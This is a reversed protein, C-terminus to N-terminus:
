KPSVDLRESGRDSARRRRRAAYAAVGAFVCLAAFATGYLVPRSGIAERLQGVVDHPHAPDFMDHAPLQARGALVDRLTRLMQEVRRRKNPDGPAAGERLLEDELRLYQEMSRVAEATNVRHLVEARCYLVDPDRSGLAIARTIAAEAPGQEGLRFHSVARYIWFRPEFEYASGVRDLYHLALRYYPPKEALTAVRAHAIYHAGVGAEFQALPDEPHADAFSRLRALDGVQVTSALTAVVMGLVGGHPNERALAHYLAFAEANRHAAYLALGRRYTERQSPTLQAPDATEPGADDHRMPTNTPAEWQWVAVRVREFVAALLAPPASDDPSWLALESTRRAASPADSPHGMRLLAARGACSYRAVIQNQEIRLDQTVCEGASADSTTSFLARVLAERGAPIVHSPPTQAQSVGCPLLVAVCTGLSVLWRSTGQVM